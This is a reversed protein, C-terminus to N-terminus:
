QGGPVWLACAQQEPVQSSHGLAHPICSTSGAKTKQLCRPVRTALVEKELLLLGEGLPACAQGCVAELM